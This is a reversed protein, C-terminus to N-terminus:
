YYRTALACLNVVCINGFVFYVCYFLFQHTHTCGGQSLGAAPVKRKGVVVIISVLFSFVTSVECKAFCCNVQYNTQFTSYLSRASKYSLALSRASKYSGAHLPALPLPSAKFLDLSEQATNACTKVHNQSLYKCPKRYTWLSRLLIQM